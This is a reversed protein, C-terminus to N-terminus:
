YSKAYYERFTEEGVEVFGEPFVAVISDGPNLLAYMFKDTQEGGPIVALVRTKHSVEWYNDDLKLFSYIM